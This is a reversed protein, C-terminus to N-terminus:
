HQSLLIRIQRFTKGEMDYIEIKLSTYCLFPLIGHATNQYDKIYIYFHGYVAWLAILAGSPALLFYWRFHLYCKPLYDLLSFPFRLHIKGHLPPSTELEVYRNQFIIKKLVM